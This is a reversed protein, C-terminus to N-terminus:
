SADPYVCSAGLWVASQGCARCLSLELGAVLVDSQVPAWRDLFVEGSNVRQWYAIKQERVAAPFQPNQALVKLGDGHIRLPVGAPNNVPSAYANFWAQDAECQCHPCTFRTKQFEPAIQADAV